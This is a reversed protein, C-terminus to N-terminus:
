PRPLQGILEQCLQGFLTASNRHSGNVYTKGVIKLHDQSLRHTNDSEVSLVIVFAISPNQNLFALIIEPGGLQSRRTDVVKLCM